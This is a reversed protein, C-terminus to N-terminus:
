NQIDTSLTESRVKALDKKFRAFEEALIGDFNPYNSSLHQLLREPEPETEAFHELASLQEPSLTTLLRALAAELILERINGELKLREGESMTEAALLEAVSEVIPFPSM